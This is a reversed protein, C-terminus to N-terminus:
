SLIFNVYMSFGRTGGFFSRRNNACVMSIEWLGDIHKYDNIWRFYCGGLLKDALFFAEYKNIGDSYDVSIVKVKYHYNACDVLTLTILIIRLM